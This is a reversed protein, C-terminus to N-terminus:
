KSESFTLKPYVTYNKTIPFLATYFEVKEPFSMQQVSNMMKQLM